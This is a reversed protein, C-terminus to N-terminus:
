WVSWAQATASLSYVELKLMLRDEVEELDEWWPAKSLSVAVVDCSDSLFDLAGCNFLFGGEVEDDIEECFANAM